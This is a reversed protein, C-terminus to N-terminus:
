RIATKANVIEGEKTPIKPVMRHLDVDSIVILGDQMMGEVADLLEDMREPKEVVSIIIPLDHSLHLLGAKHTHKKAGYGLIGRYVTAGSFDLVRLKKLIAEYLPEGKYKDSEGLFIRVLKAPRALEKRSVNSDPAKKERDKCVSKIVTTDQVEILGDTVMEYLSPLLEEVREPTEVFEIRVPLHDGAYESRTDHVQEHAGFGMLMRSVSAGAVHKQRLFNFITMWLPEVHHRTDQNLYITVKRASGKPLM